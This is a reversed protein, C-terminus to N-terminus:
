TNITFMGTASHSSHNRYGLGVPTVQFYNKIRNPQVKPKPDPFGGIDTEGLAYLNTLAVPDLIEWEPSDDDIESFDDADDWRDGVCVYAHM